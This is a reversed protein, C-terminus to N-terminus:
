SVVGSEKRMLYLAVYANQRHYRAFFSGNHFAKYQSYTQPLLLMSHEVMTSNLPVQYNTCYM